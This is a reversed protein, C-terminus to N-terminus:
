TLEEDRVDEEPDGLKQIKPHMNCRVLILEVLSVVGQERTELHEKITKTWALEMILTAPQQIGHVAM